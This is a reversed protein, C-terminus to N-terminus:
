SSLGKFTGNARGTCHCKDECMVCLVCVPRQPNLRHPWARDNGQVKTDKFAIQASCCFDCSVAADGLHHASLPPLGAHVPHGSFVASLRPLITGVERVSCPALANRVATM